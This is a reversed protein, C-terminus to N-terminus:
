WEAEKTSMAPGESVNGQGNKQRHRRSTSGVKDGGEGVGGQEVKKEVGRWSKKRVVKKIRLCHKLIHEKNEVQFFVELGIISSM